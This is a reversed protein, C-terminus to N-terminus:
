SSSVESASWAVWSAAHFYQLSVAEGTERCADQLGVLRRPLDDLLDAPRLFELESRARGLLRLAETKSGARAAPRHDLQELCGEGQRLTSFVSRPFSRDLLLFQAVRAADLTGRN